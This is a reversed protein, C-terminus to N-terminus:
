NIHKKYYTFVQNQTTELMEKADSRSMYGLKKNVPDMVVINFQNFGTILLAEGSDYLVMVPIDQNTYYLIGELSTDTIDMFVYSEQTNSLIEQCTKGRELETKTDTPSGIQRLMIDMCITKSNREDTVTELEIAMIQNKVVTAAKKWILLGDADLAYGEAQAAAKMADGAEAVYSIVRWPDYVVCYPEAQKIQVELLKQGEYFLEKAKVHELSAQDVKNKLSVQWVTQYTATMASLISNYGNKTVKNSLIQDQPAATVKGQTYFVRELLIQNGSIRCETILIGEEQYQKRIDGQADEICLASMYQAYSGDSQLVRDASTSIGYVFDNGIFGQPIISAAQSHTIERAAGEDLNWFYIGEENQVVLQSQDESIFLKRGETYPVAVRTQGSDTDCSIINGDFYFFFEGKRNLYSLREVQDAVYSASKTSEYFGIERILKMQGDYSYLVIGTKGEHAGRNMYGYIMYYISGSETVQLVEMDHAFYTSREDGYIDDFFGYVYNIENENDDYYYLSSNVVFAAMSGDESETVEIDKSQISLNIKNNAYVDGEYDFIADATREYELLYQKEGFTSVLFSEVVHYYEVREEVTSSVYYDLTYGGFNDQLYTICIEPEKALVVPLEGWVVQSTSSHINVYALSTNSMSKDTEMYEAIESARTKDLTMEHFDKVFALQEDLRYEKGYVFRTYYYIKDYKETQVIFIFIYEEGSTILDKMKVEFDLIGKERESMQIAGSEILRSGDNNRVEYSLATIEEGFAEVQGHLVRDEEVPCIYRSVDTAEMSSTFGHLTNYSEGNLMVSILPLSPASLEMTMDVNNRNIFKYSGFVSVLFVALFTGWMVLRKNM